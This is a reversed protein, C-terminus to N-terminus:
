VAHMGLVQDNQIHRLTTLYTDMADKLESKLRQCLTDVVEDFLTQDLASHTMVDFYIYFQIYSTDRLQCVFQETVHLDKPEGDVCLKDMDLEAFHATIIEGARASAIANLKVGHDGRSSKVDSGLGIHACIPHHSVTMDLIFAM